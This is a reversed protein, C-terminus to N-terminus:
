VQVLNGLNRDEAKVESFQAKGYEPKVSKEKFSLFGPYDLPCFHVEEYFHNTDDVEM